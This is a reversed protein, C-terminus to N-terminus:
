VHAAEESAYLDRLVDAFEPYSISICDADDLVTTGRAALGAIAFAMAIRHDGGTKIAGGRLSERGRVIFGDDTEEADAGMARLNAVVAAIRDSEKYRLEQAGKVVTTGEALAACVGLLPVEDLMAPIEDPGVEAGKLRSAAVRIDGVPETGGPPTRDDVELACGMRRLVRVFGARLPNLGVGEVTVESGPLIAGLAIWFAASSMDGPVDVDCAKLGPEPHVRIVRDSVTAPVGFLPLMRETHDRSQKPEIISTTGYAFLAALMICSKVQASAVPLRYDSLPSLNGGRLCLPAKRGRDRGDIRAGMQRLPNVIRDMPRNRLSSDGTLVSLFEQGALVGSLLRMTTGSNGCDLVDRPEKLGRLGMGQIEVSSQGLSDRGLNYEVGMLSLCSLTSLCDQGTSYNRIITKGDALSGLIAARHSISKDGPVRIRCRAQKLPTIEM